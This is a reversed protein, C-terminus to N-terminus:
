VRVVICKVPKGFRPTIRYPINGDQLIANSALEGAIKLGASIEQGTLDTWTLIQDIRRVLLDGRILNPCVLSLLGPALPGGVAPSIITFM